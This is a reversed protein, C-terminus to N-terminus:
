DYKKFVWERVESGEPWSDPDFLAEAHRVDCAVRFAASKFARGDKATLKRCTVGALGKTTLFETLEEETTSLELRGAFVAMQRPATKLTGCGTVAKGRIQRINKKQMNSDQPPLYKNATEAWSIPIAAAPANLQSSLLPFDNDLDTMDNTTVDLAQPKAANVIDRNMLLTKQIQPITKNSSQNMRGIDNVKTTLAHLQASMELVIAALSGAGEDNFNLPPLRRLKAAVFTPMTVKAADLKGWLDLLDDVDGKKKADGRRTTQRPIELKSKAEDNNEAFRFLKNKADNIEDADYFGLLIKATDNKTKNSDTNQVFCLVESIICNESM